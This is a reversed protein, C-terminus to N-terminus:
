EKYNKCACNSCYFKFTIDEGASGCLPCRSLKSIKSLGRFPVSKQESRKLSELWKVSWWYPMGKLMYFEYGGGKNSSAIIEQTTGCFPDMHKNSWCWWPTNGDAPPASIVKVMEGINFKM